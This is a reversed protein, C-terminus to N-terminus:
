YVTKQLWTVLPATAAGHEALWTALRAEHLMGRPIAPFGGTLGKMKLLAGRPHEPDYPKPVRKYDDHGGVSYGAARLKAIIKELEGGPKGVVAKRWKALQKADFFYLGVGVFEEDLGIHIYLAANGGAALKKDAVTIVGGIHTKYPAKDNSFRVDRHIRMVKPEGLKMPKYAKALRTKVEGLLATMPEVWETEYRAKNAVFWDRNMEAALEHWFQMAQPPFGAFTM